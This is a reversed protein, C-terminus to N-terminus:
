DDWELHQGCECTKPNLEHNLIYKMCKPCQYGYLREDMGVVRKIPKM